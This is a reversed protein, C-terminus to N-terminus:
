LGYWVLPVTPNKLSDLLSPCMRRLFHGAFLAIGSM